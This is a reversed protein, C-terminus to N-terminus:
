RPANYSYEQKKGTSDQTKQNLSEQEMASCEELRGSRPDFRFYISGDFTSIKSKDIVIEIIPKKKPVLVEVGSETIKSELDNPDSWFIDSRERMDKLDNYVGLNLNGDYAMGGSGKINSLKPRIGPKLADKPLEM